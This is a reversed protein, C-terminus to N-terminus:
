KRILGQAILRLTDNPTKGDGAMRDNGGGRKHRGFDIVPIKAAIVM